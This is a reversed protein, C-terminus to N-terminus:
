REKSAFIYDITMTKSTAEGNQIGFSVTLDEDDPLNTVASKGLLTPNNNLGSYYYVADIGNYYFGLTIFTDDAITTAATVTTNINNKTVVFDVNTDGNDKKFYIGDSAVLPTIDTIQLGIVFNSQTADSIKFKTKFFAKKGAEMRFSEGKKNLFDKDDVGNANSILLLGGDGDSIVVSAAGGGGQSSTNVWQTDDFYDFDDFYTHTKTPDLQIFQGLINEKTVNTVGNPLRTPTGM